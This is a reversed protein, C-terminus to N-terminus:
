NSLVMANGFVVLADIKRRKDNVEKVHQRNMYSIIRLWFMRTFVSVLSVIAAVEIAETSAATVINYDDYLEDDSQSPSMMLSPTLTTIERLLPSSV